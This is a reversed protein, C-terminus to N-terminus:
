WLLQGGNGLHFLGHTVPNQASDTESLHGAALSSVSPSLLSTLMIVQVSEPQSRSGVQVGPEASETHLLENMQRPAFMGQANWIDVQNEFDREPQDFSCSQTQM